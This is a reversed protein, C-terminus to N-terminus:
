AKRLSDIAKKYDNDLIYSASVLINAGAAKVIKATDGSIGGDVAIDLSFDRRLDKIKSSVDIFKQRAFGPEVTMVLVMDIDKIYGNLAKVETKPKLAAGAKKGKSKIQAICDAIKDSSEVHLTILDCGASIFEQIFNEPKDIMLHAEFPLNTKGRFSKIFAPGFTINPVFHGDMVDFSIFDIGSSELNKIVSSLNSLDASLISAGVKIDM